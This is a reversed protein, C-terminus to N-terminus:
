SEIEKNVSLDLEFDLDRPNKANPKCMLQGSVVEGAQSQPLLSLSIIYQFHSRSFILVIFITDNVHM